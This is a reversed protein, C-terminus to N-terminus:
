KQNVTNILFIGVFFKVKNISLWFYRHSKNENNRCIALSLITQTYYIISEFYLLCTTVHFKSNFLLLRTREFTQKNRILVYKKAM